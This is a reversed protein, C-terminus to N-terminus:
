ENMHVYITKHNSNDNIYLYTEKYDQIPIIGINYWRNVNNYDM